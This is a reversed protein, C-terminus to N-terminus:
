RDGVAVFNRFCPIAKRSKLDVKGRVELEVTGGGRQYTNRKFHKSAISILDSGKGEAASDLQPSSSTTINIDDPCTLTM